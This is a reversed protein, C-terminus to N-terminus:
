FQRGFFDYLSYLLTLVNFYKNRQQKPIGIQINYMLHNLLQKILNEIGVSRHEFLVSFIQETLAIQNLRCNAIIQRLNFIKIFELQIYIIKVLPIKGIQHANDLYVRLDLCVVFLYILQNNVTSGDPLAERAEDQLGELSKAKLIQATIVICNFFRWNFISNLTNSSAKIILKNAFFNELFDILFLGHLFEFRLLRFFWSLFDIISSKTFIVQKINLFEVHWLLLLLPILKLGINRHRMVYTRVIKLM